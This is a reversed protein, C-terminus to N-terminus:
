MRKTMLSGTSGQSDTSGEGGGGEEGGRRKDMQLHLCHYFLSLAPPPGSHHGTIEHLIKMPLHKLLRRTITARLNALLIVQVDANPFFIITSNEWVARGQCNRNQM